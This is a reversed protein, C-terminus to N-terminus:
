RDLPVRILRGIRKTTKNGYFNDRGKAKMDAVNDRNTGLVLHEPNVCRRNDCTHMVQMGAPDAGNALAWALRHAMCMKWGGDSQKIALQGYGRTNLAGEFEQCETANHLQPILSSRTTSPLRCM